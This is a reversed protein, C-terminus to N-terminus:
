NLPNTSKQNKTQKKLLLLVALILVILGIVIAYIYETPVEHNNSTPEPTEMPAGIYAYKLGLDYYYYYSYCVHPNGMSDLALIGGGGSRDITQTEWSESNWYTYKLSLSQTQGARYPAGVSYVIHPNNKADLVLSSGRFDMNDASYVTQTDWKTGTWSTYKITETYNDSSNSFVALYSIHPKGQSDLKLSGGTDANTDITQINWKSNTWSAYKLGDNYYSIHPNGSSDLVLKPSWSGPTEDVTQTNWASGNWNTYMLIPLYGAIYSIHPNGQSDLVLSASEAMQSIRQIEWETGTWNAYAIGGAGNPAYAIQPNNNADLALSISGPNAGIKVTQNVWSTGTWWIYKLDGSKLESYSIHPNGNSDLVLSAGWTNKALNEMNWEQDTAYTSNCVLTFALIIFLVICTLASKSM